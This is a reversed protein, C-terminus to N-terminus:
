SNDMVELKPSIHLLQLLRQHVQGTPAVQWDGDRLQHAQHLGRLLLSGWQRRTQRSPRRSRLRDSNWVGRHGGL